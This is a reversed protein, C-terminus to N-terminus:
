VAAWGRPGATPDPLAVAGVDAPSSRSVSQQSNSLWHFLDAFRLGKLRLPERAKSLSSLVGFDADNVGVAFFAFEKRAEGSQIMEAASNWADTPAGDTILFIWPRYFAIGAKRYMDKRERLIEIGKAIAAGMPTNGSAMLQPPTFADVTTFDQVVTVPGFTVISIEVRKSALQDAVLEERYAKLGANLEDIPAGNM